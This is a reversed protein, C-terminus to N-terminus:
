ENHYGEFYVQKAKVQAFEIENHNYTLPNGSVKILMATLSGGFCCFYCCYISGTKIEYKGYYIGGM